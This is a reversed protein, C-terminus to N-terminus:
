RYFLTPYTGLIKSAGPEPFPVTDPSKGITSEPSLPQDQIDTKTEDLTKKDFAPKDLIQEDVTQKEVTQEEVTQAKVPQEELVPQSSSQENRSLEARYAENTLPEGFSAEVAVIEDVIGESAINM